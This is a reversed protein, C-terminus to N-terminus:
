RPLRSRGSPIFLDLRPPQASPLPRRVVRVRSGRQTTTQGQATIQRQTATQREAM